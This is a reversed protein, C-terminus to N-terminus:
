KSALAVICMILLGMSGFLLWEPIVAGASAMGGMILFGLISAVGPLLIIVGRAIRRRQARQYDEYFKKAARELHNM